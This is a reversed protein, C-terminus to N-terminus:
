RGEADWDTGKVGYVSLDFYDRDQSLLDLVMLAREANKSKANIATGNNIIPNTGTPVDPLIDVMEPKWEPHNTM